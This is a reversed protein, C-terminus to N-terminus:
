GTAFRPGAVLLPGEAHHVVGAAVSGVTLRPLGTRGHTTLVVLADRRAHDVIARAPDEGHLVDWSVASGFSRAVSRLYGSEFGPEPGGPANSSAELGPVVVQVLELPLGLWRAWAVATPVVVEAAHSGDLAVVVRQLPQDLDRVAYRPGVLLVPAHVTRLVAEATSGLLLGGVRGRGHSAMCLLAGPRDAEEVIAENPHAAQAELEARVPRVEAGHLPLVHLRLVEWHEPAALTRALGLAREAFVSGDVPVVVRDVTTPDFTTTSPEATTSM